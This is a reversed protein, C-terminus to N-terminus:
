SLSSIITSRRYHTDLTGFGFPFLPTHPQFTYQKGSYQRYHQYYPNSPGGVQGVSFPWSSVLKGSPATDGFLIKALANGGEEGPRWAVLLAPIKSLLSNQKTFFLVDSDLPARM